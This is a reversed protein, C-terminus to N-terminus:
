LLIGQQTCKNCIYPTDDKEMKAAEDETVGICNLHFWEGCQDCCIM